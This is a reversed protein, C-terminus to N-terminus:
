GPNGSPTELLDQLKRILTELEFPKQIFAAIGDTHFRAMTDQETYGSSLIVKINGRINRLAKFTEEGNMDPMTMDLLVAVIQDAHRHFVRIAEAGGAATRVGFGQRVLMRQAMDRAIPEDDVVLVM